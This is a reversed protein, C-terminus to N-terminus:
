ETTVRFQSAPLDKNFLFQTLTLEWDQMAPNADSEFVLRIKYTHPLILQGEKRYDAFEETLKLRTPRQKAADEPRSVTPASIEHQYETRVHQFSEADFFLRIELNGGSRPEYDLAHVQRGDVKRLGSYRLKANRSSLDSLPWASSLTGGMLGEKILIDHTMLFGGLRTRKGPQWEGVTLQEGDFAIKENSYDQVGFILGVLSMRGQSAMVAGGKSQGAGGVRTRAVVAGQLVRSKVSARAEASGLSELHRHVVDEATLKQSLSDGAAVVILLLAFALRILRNTNNTM